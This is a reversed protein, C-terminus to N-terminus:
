SGAPPYDVLTFEEETPAESLLGALRGIGVHAETVLKEGAGVGVYTAVSGGYGGYAADKVTPFYLHFDNAYGCLLTNTLPSGHKLDLQHQTFMEGPMFAIATDTNVLLLGLPVALDSTLHGIYKDFLSQYIRRFRAQVDPRGFDWRTGVMVSSEVYKLSPSAPARTEIRDLADLVAAAAERGVSRMSAIGEEDLPTKDLYPNIDGCAGQLFLCEAGTEHKVIHAMEGVWDGTFRRNDAALVVPHCAYNVLVALPTGDERDLRILIAEKDVPSTPMKSANRWLMYCKGDKIFRRNHGIDITTRGVGLRVLQLHQAADEIADGVAKEVAQAHPADATEMVPGGHTHTAFLVVHGIGAAAGRARIRAVSEAMPVRGLDLSVLAVREDGAELVLARAYLPDLTGESPGKRDTYGWMAVGPGPTIDRRATGARWGMVDRTVALEEQGDEGCTGVM